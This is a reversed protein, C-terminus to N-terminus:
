AGTTKEAIVEGQRRKINTIMIKTDGPEIREGERDIKIEWGLIKCFIINLFGDPEISQAFSFACCTCISEVWKGPCPVLQPAARM